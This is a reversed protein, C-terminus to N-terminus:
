SVLLNIKSKLVRTMQLTNKNTEKYKSNMNQNTKWAVKIM